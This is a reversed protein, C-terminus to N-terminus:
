SFPVHFGSCFRWRTDSYIHQAPCRAPLVSVDQCYISYSPELTLYSDTTESRKTCADTRDATCNLVYMIPPANHETASTPLHVSPLRPNVKSVAYIRPM